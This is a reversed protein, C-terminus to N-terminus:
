RPGDSVALSAASACDCACAAGARALSACSDIRGDARSVLDARVPRAAGIAAARAELMLAMLGSVHAAAYSSGSVATWRSGPATAPVDAGPAAVMGPPTPGAAADVVAVVGDLAAPFGGNAQARDAAAVVGIGRALAAEVLRALLRDSPGGLSLNIVQAGHEIAAHLARALGLTSCVTEDPRAERCARLALLRARPAVGVIGVHNDARAAVIGAVATGHAEARDERDGAFNDHLMWQGALDPHDLQVGSDVVAVRVDRGTSTAHLEALRWERAAPQLAFLPDDHGLPRFVNMPQAWEVRPDRALQAVVDELRLSAPVNMVFCDLQVIPLPWDVALTLGNRRALDAATRRRSAGGAADAYGAVYRGDPRFHQAPLNLLVLVQQMPAPAAVAEAARTSGAGLLCALLATWLLRM